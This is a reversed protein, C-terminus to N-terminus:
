TPQTERYHIYFDSAVGLVGLASGTRDEFLDTDDLMETWDITVGAATGHWNSLALRVQEAVAKVGSYSEAWSTVQIRARVLPTQNGMAYNRIGSIRQYVVAPLAADQPIEVPSIRTSVLATLGAFGSLRSYVAEELLAM